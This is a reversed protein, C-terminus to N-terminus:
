GLFERLMSGAPVLTEDLADVLAFRGALSNLTECLPHEPPLSGALPAMFPALLCIEYSFSTDLLLDAEPKFVKIFKDEGACVGGWMGLTKELSHGRFKCDRMMRRALRITAASPTTGGEWPSACLEVRTVGARSAVLCADVSYACLETTM